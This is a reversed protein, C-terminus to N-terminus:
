RRVRTISGALIGLQVAGLVAFAIAWWRQGLAAVYLAMGASALATVLAVVLVLWARM